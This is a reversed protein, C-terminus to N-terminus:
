LPAGIAVSRNRPDCVLSYQQNPTDTVRSNSPEVYRALRVAEKIEGDRADKWVLLYPIKRPDNLNSRVLWVPIVPMNECNLRTWFGLFRQHDGRGQKRREVTM